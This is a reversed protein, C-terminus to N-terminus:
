YRINVFRNQQSQSFLKFIAKLSKWLVWAWASLVTAYWCVCVFVSLWVGVHVWVCVCVCEQVNSSLALSYCERGVDSEIRQWQERKATSCLCSCVWVRAGVCVRVCLLVWVYMCVCVCRYSGVWICKSDCPVTKTATAAKIQWRLRDVDAGIQETETESQGDTERQRQWPSSQISSSHMSHHLSGTFPIQLKIELRFLFYINLLQEHLHEGPSVGQQRGGGGRGSGGSRRQLKSRKRIRNRSSVWSTSLM